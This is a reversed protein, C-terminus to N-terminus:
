VEDGLLSLKVTELDGIAKFFTRQLKGIRQILEEKREKVEISSIFITKPTPTTM